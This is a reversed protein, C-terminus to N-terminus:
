GKVILIASVFGAMFILFDVMSFFPKAIVVNQTEAKKSKDQVPMVCDETPLASAVPPTPPTSVVPLILTTDRNCRPCFFSEFVKSRVSRVGMKRCGDCLYLTKKDLTKM